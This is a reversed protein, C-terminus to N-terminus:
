SFNSYLFARTYQQHLQPPATMMSRIDSSQGVSSGQRQQQQKGQLLKVVQQTVVNRWVRQGHIIVPQCVVNCACGDSCSQSCRSPPLICAEAHVAAAAAAMVAHCRQLRAQHCYALAFAILLLLLPLLLLLRHVCAAPRPYRAFWLLLLLLLGTSTQM